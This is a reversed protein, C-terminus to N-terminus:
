GGGDWGLGVFGLGLIGVAGGGGGGAPGREVGAVGDFLHEGRLDDSGVIGSEIAEGPRHLGFVCGLGLAEAAGVGRHGAAHAVRHALQVLALLVRRVGLGRRGDFGDGREAAAGGFRICRVVGHLALFGRGRRLFIRGFHGVFFEVGGVGVYLRLDGGREEVVFVRADLPAACAAPSGGGSDHDGVNSSSASGWPPTVRFWAATRVASLAPSEGWIGEPDSPTLRLM